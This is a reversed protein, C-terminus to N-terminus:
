FRADAVWHFSVDNGATFSGFIWVYFSSDSVLLGGVPVTAGDVTLSNPTGDAAYVTVSPATRKTAKFPITLSFHGCTGQMRFDCAGFPAVTGPAVGISYSKEYLRQCRMLEVAPDEPIYLTPTRSYEAKIWEIDATSGLLRIFVMVATSDAPNCVVSYVGPATVTQASTLTHVFFQVSGSVSKVKISLTMVEGVKPEAYAILDLYENAGKETHVGGGAIKSVVWTPSATPTAAQWNDATYM